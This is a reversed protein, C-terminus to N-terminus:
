TTIVHIEAPVPNPASSITQDQVARSRWVNEALLCGFLCSLFFCLYASRAFIARFVGDVREHSCTSM